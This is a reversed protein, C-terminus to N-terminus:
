VQNKNASRRLRDISARSDDATFIVSGVVLRSAGADVLARVNELSVGGDVQIMTDCYTERLKRVLALARSDFAEGQFGIRAIGMVQIFDYLGDFPTLSEADADPLIAIGVSVPFDDEKRASQLGDLAQMSGESKAHVIISSAGALILDTTIQEPHVAMVDFQFDFEEWLPLGEDGSIIKQFAERDKYPWTTNKAFMGDVIDIQVESTEGRVRELQAELDRLSKPM